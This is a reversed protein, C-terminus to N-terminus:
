TLGGETLGYHIKCNSMAPFKKKNIAGLTMTADEDRGCSFLQLNLDKPWLM